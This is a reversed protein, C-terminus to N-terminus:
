DYSGDWIVAYHTIVQHKDFEVCCDCIGKLPNIDGILYIKGEKTKILTGPKNLGREDLSIQEDWKNFVPGYPLNIEIWDIKM